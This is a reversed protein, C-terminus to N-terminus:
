LSSREKKNKRSGNLLNDKATKIDALMEGPDIKGAFAIVKKFVGTTDNKTVEEKAVATNSAIYTIKVAKFTPKPDEKVVEDILVTENVVEAVLTKSEPIEKKIIPEKIKDPISTPEKKSAYRITENKVSNTEVKKVSKKEIVPLVFEPSLDHLQVPHSVESAIPTLAERNSAEPWIMWSMLLLSISAAVWYVIPRKKPRIQGEVKSWANASPSVEMHDLKERFLRDINQQDM